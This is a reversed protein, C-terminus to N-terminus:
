EGAAEVVQCGGAHGAVVNEQVLLLSRRPLVEGVALFEHRFVLGAVAADDDGVVGM